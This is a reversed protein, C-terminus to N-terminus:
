VPRYGPLKVIFSSGKGPTSKVLIKGKHAAVLKKTITLGLGTGKTKVASDHRIQEFAKFIRQIDVKQIGIGEDSVIFIASDKDANVKLGVKKGSETFKIANSLLNYLIQKLHVEDAHLIGFNEAIKVSFHVGKQRAIHSVPMIFNSILSNLNIDHKDITVKGSEIKAMDLIDNVIELLHSGSEYIISAYKCMKDKNEGSAFSEIMQSFGLISNLPTRLEHSMNALFLSKSHNAAVAKEKELILKKHLESLETIDAANIIFVSNELTGDTQVRISTQLVKISEDKAKVRYQKSPLSCYSGPDLTLCKKQLENFFGTIHNKLRAVDHLYLISFVDEGICDIRSYGLMQQISPSTYLITGSGDILAILDSSSEILNQYHKESKLYASNDSSM